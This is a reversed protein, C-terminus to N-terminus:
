RSTNISRFIGQQMAAINTSVARTRVHWWTSCYQMISCSWGPAIQLLPIIIWGPNIGPWSFILLEELMQNIKSRKLLSVSFMWIFIVVCSSALLWDQNNYIHRWFHAYFKTVEEYKCLCFLWRRGVIEHANKDDSPIIKIESIYGHKM